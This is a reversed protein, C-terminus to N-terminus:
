AAASLREQAAHWAHQSLLRSKCCRAGPHSFTARHRPESHTGSITIRTGGCRQARTRSTAFRYHEPFTNGCLMLCVTRRLRNLSPRKALARFGPLPEWVRRDSGLSASSRVCAHTGRRPAPRKCLAGGQSDRVGTGMRPVSNTQLGRRSQWRATAAAGHSFTRKSNTAAIRQVKKVERLLFFKRGIGRSSPIVDREASIASM